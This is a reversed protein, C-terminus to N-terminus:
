SRNWEERLRLNTIIRCTRSMWAELENDATDGERSIAEASSDTLHIESRLRDARETIIQLTAADM